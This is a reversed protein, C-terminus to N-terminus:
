RGAASPSIAARGRSTLEWALMWRLRGGANIVQREGRQQILGKRKLPRARPSFSDRVMGYHRAIETTSLPGNTKLAALFMGELKSVTVDDIAEHSTAPDTNRAIAM